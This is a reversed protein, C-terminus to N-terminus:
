SKTFCNVSDRRVPLTIGVGTILTDRVVLYMFTFSLMRVVIVSFNRLVATNNYKFFM